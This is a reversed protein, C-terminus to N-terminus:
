DEPPLICPNGPDRQPRLPQPQRLRHMLQRAEGRPAGGEQLPLPQTPLDSSDSSDMAAAQTNFRRLREGRRRTQPGPPPMLSTALLLALVGLAALAACLGYRQAALAGAQAQLGSRLEAHAQELLAQEAQALATAAAQRAASAASDRQLQFYHQASDRLAAVAAQSAASSAPLTDALQQLRAQAAAFERPHAEDSGPAASNLLGLRAALRPLDRAVAPAWALGPGAAEQGGQLVALAVYDMVQLAQEVLLRHGADSDEAALSREEVRRSLVTWDARLAEGEATARTHGSSRLSIDLDTLRENVVRQQQRREAERQGAGRLVAGAVDRHVVLSRQVSVADALPDLAAQASRNADLAAGQYRLVQLLPLACVLVGVVGLAAFRHRVQFRSVLWPWRAGAQSPQSPQDPQSAPYSAAHRPDPM